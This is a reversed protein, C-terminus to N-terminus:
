PLIIENTKVSYNIVSYNQNVHWQDVFATFLLQKKAKPKASVPAARKQFVEFRSDQLVQSDKLILIM